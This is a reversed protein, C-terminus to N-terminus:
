PLWAVKVARFHIQRTIRIVFDCTMTFGNAGKIRMPELDTHTRIRINM